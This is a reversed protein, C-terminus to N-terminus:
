GTISGDAVQGYVNKKGDVHKKKLVILKSKFYPQILYHSLIALINVYGLLFSSTIWLYTVEM